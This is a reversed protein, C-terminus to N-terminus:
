WKAQSSNQSQYTSSALTGSAAPRRPPAVAGPPHEAVHQVGHQPQQVRHHREDGLLQPRREGAALRHDDRAHGAASGARRSGAASASIAASCSTTVSTRRNRDSWPRRGPWRTAPGARRAPRPRGPRARAAPGPASGARAAPRRTRASRTATPAPRVTSSSRDPAISTAASRPPQVLSRAAACFSCACRRRRLEAVLSGRWPAPAPRPWSAPRPQGRGLGVDLPDGRLEVRQRRRHGGVRPRRLVPGVSARTWASSRCRHGSDRSSGVSSRIRASTSRSPSGCRAVRDIWRAPVLPLVVVARIISASSRPKPRRTPRNM